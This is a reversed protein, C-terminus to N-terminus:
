ENSSIKQDELNTMKIKDRQLFCREYSPLDNTLNFDQPEAKPQGFHGPLGDLNCLTFYPQSNEDVNDGVFFQPTILYNDTM